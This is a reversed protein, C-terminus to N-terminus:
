RWVPRSWRPARTLGAARCTAEQMLSEHGPMM